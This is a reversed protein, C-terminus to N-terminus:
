FESSPALFNLYNNKNIVQPQSHYTEVWKRSARPKEKTYKIEYAALQDNVEEVYDLEAGTWLRWFYQRFPQRRYTLLKLRESIIFNEWLAGLDDRLQLPKLNGILANRVGLDYFYVKRSKTIEKRLNRSFGRLQFIVFAKELLEVYRIVTEINIGLNSSLERWSVLNGVQYALLRLLDILKQSRKLNSLILIDKYLYQNVLEALIEYREKNNPALVVEPYLGYVLFQDLFSSFEIPSYYPKLERLSFPYLKFTWSRGTLPEQTKNALDFSSSSTLILHPVIKSDYIIKAIVGINSLYQAEDIVVLQYGGFLAKLHPLSYNALQTQVELREASLYLTKGKWGALIKKVLTTKGVQRPGFLTIIKQSTKLKQRIQDEIERRIEM